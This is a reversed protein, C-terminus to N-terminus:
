LLGPGLTARRLLRARRSCHRQRLHLIVERAVEPQRFLALDHDGPM